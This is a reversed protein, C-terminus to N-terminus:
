LSASSFSFAFAPITLLIASAGNRPPERVLCAEFAFLQSRQECSAALKWQEQKTQNRTM